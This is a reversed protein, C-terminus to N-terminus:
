TAERPVKKFHEDSTKAAFMAFGAARNWEDGSAAACILIRMQAELEEFDAPRRREAEKVILDVIADCREVEDIIAAYATNAHDIGKSCRPQNAIALWGDRGLKAAELVLELDRHDLRGLAASIKKVSGVKDLQRM